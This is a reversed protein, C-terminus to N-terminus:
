IGSPAPQSPQVDVSSVGRVELVANRLANIEDATCDGRLMVHGDRAMIEIAGANPVAHGLSSRVRACLTEDSVPQYSRFYGRAEAVQGRMRGTVHRGTARFFDGTEHLWHMSKNRLWARRSRGLRPDLAWILGAGLAMSGIACATQGAYHHEREGTLAIRAGRRVDDAKQGFRQRVSGILNRGASM